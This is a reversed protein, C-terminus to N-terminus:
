IGHVKVLSGDGGRKSIDENQKHQGNQILKTNCFGDPNEVKGNQKSEILKQYIILLQIIIHNREFKTRTETAEANCLM